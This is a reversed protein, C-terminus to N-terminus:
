VNKNAQKLCQEMFEKSVKKSPVKMMKPVYVSKCKKCFWALSFLGNTVEVLDCKCSRCTADIIKPTAILKFDEFIM